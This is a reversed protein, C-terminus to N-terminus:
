PAKGVPTEGALSILVEGDTAVPGFAADGVYQPVGDSGPVVYTSGTATYYRKGKVSALTGASPLWDALRRPTGNEGEEWLQRIGSEPTAENSPATWCFRGQHILGQQEGAEAAIREPAGGSLPVRFFETGLRNFIALYVRDGAVGVIRTGSQELTGASPWEALTRVRSGDLTNLRIQSGLTPIFTLGPDAPVTSELWLPQQEQAYLAAPRSLGGAAERPEGGSKSVRLLRGEDGRRELLWLDEGVAVHTWDKGTALKRGAGSGSGLFLEVEEGRRHLWAWEGGRADFGVIRLSSPAGEDGPPAQALATLALSCSLVLAALLPPKSCHATM